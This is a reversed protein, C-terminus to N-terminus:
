SQGSFEGKNEIYWKTWAGPDDGLEVRTIDRLSLAAQCRVGPSPDKLSAILPEIAKPDGIWKLAKAAHMRVFIDNHELDEIFRDVEM